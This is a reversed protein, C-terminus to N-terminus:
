ENGKALFDAYKPPDLIVADQGRTQTLIIKPTAGDTYSLTVDDFYDKAIAQPLVQSVSKHTGRVISEKVFRKEKGKSRKVSRTWAENTSVTAYAARVYYGAGRAQTIKKGLSEPSSDGTGDLVVHRKTAFAKTQMAKALYSSEEHVFGAAAEHEYRSASFRLPDFEPLQTKIDDANIHVAETKSRVGPFVGNALGHSKGSAPGGGLMVFDLREGKKARPAARVHDEVLKKHMAQREPTIRYQSEGPKGSYKPNKELHHWLSHNPTLDEGIPSDKGSIKTPIGARFGGTAGTIPKTINLHAEPATEKGGITYLGYAQVGGLASGPARAFRGRRDHYKNAKEIDESDADMGEPDAILSEPIIWLKCLGMANVQEDILECAGPSKYAICNACMMGTEAFPSQEMYHAGDAGSGKNWCGLLDDITEYAAYMAKQRENFLPMSDYESHADKQFSEELWDAAEDGGWSDWAVRAASPYEDEGKLFGTTDRDPAHTLFFEVMKEITALGIEDGSALQTARVAGVMNAGPHDANARMWDRARLAAEQVSEPIAFTEAKTVIADDDVPAAPANGLVREVVRRIRNTISPMEVIGQPLLRMEFGHNAVLVELPLPHGAVVAGMAKERMAEPLLGIVGHDAEGCALIVPPFAVVPDDASLGRSVAEAALVNKVMLLAETAESKSLLATALSTDTLSQADKRIDFLNDLANQM